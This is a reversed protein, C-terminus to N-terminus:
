FRLAGTNILANGMGFTDLDKELCKKFIQVFREPTSDNPVVHVYRIKLEFLREQLYSWKDGVVHINGLLVFGRATPQARMHQTLVNLHNLPVRHAIVCLREMLSASAITVSIVLQVKHCLSEMTNVAVHNVAHTRKTSRTPVRLSQANKMVSKVASSAAVM